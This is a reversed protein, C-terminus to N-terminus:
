VFGEKTDNVACKYIVCEKGSHIPFQKGYASNDMTKRFPFVRPVDTRGAEDQIDYVIFGDNALGASRNAFKRCAETAKEPSTGERPPSCGFLFSPKSTDLLHTSINPKTSQM